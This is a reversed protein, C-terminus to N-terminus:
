EICYLLGKLTFGGLSVRLIQNCYLSTRTVTRTDTEQM